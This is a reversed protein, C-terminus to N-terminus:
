RPKLWMGSTDIELSGAAASRWPWSRRSQVDRCEWPSACAWKCDARRSRRTERGSRARSAAQGRWESRASARCEGSSQQWLRCPRRLRSGRFPDRRKQAIWPDLEDALDILAAFGFKQALRQCKQERDIPRLREAQHHDLCHRATGGDLEIRASLRIVAFDSPRSTGSVSSARTSSAISYARM